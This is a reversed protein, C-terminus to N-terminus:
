HTDSPVFMERKRSLSLAAQRLGGQGGGSLLFALRSSPAVGQGRVAGAQQWRGWERRSGFKPQEAESLHPSLLCSVM